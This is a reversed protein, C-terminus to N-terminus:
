FRNGIITGDADPISKKGELFNFTHFYKGQNQTVRDVIYYIKLPANM